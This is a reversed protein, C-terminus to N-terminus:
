ARASQRGRYLFNRGKERRSVAVRIYGTSRTPFLRDLALILPYSLAVVGRSRDNRAFRLLRFLLLRVSIAEDSREECHCGKLLLCSRVVDTIVGDTGHHHIFPLGAINALQQKSQADVEDTWIKVPVRQDTLVQRIPM